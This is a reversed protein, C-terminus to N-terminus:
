SKTRRKPAEGPRYEVLRSIQLDVSLLGNVPLLAAKNSAMQYSLQGVDNMLNDIRCVEVEMVNSKKELRYLLQGLQDPTCQIQSISISIIKFDDEKQPEKYQVSNYKDKLGVEDLIFSIEQRILLNQQSDNGELKLEKEMADFKATIEVAKSKVSLLTDIKVKQEGIDEQLTLWQQGVQKYLTFLGVGIGMVVMIGM